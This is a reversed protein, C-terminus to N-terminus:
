GTFVGFKYSVENHMCGQRNSLNYANALDIYSSLPTNCCVICLMINLASLLIGDVSLRKVLSVNMAM